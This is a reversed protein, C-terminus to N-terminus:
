FHVVGLFSVSIPVYFHSNIGFRDGGFTKIPPGTGTEGTALGTSGGISANPFSAALQLSDFGAASSYKSSRKPFRALNAM